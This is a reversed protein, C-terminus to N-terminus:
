CQRKRDFTNLELIWDETSKSFDCVILIFKIEQLKATENRTRPTLEKEGKGAIKSLLESIAKNTEM